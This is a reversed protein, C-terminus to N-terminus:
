HNHHRHNSKDNKITCYKDQCIEDQAEIEITVHIINHENLEERIKNKIKLNNGNTTVHLTAYNNNSDISWVHVHHVDIVGNIKLIHSILEDIDVDNPAKQLLIEFIPKLNKASSIMIFISLGISMIPDIIYFDTYHMIIAGILVVVWGLVDELMHLNVAKQNLSDGTHTLISAILNVIIGIIAFVIMGNYNIETPNIIRQISNYIVTFSGLLLILTTIFGGIVSYGIYGYTYKNDPKKKSKKELLFAIGISTADGIDHIADSIIAVSGTFIGGIFEFISFSLNLIFAILINKETKM